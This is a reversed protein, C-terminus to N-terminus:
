GYKERIWKAANAMNIDCRIDKPIGEYTLEIDWSERVLKTLSIAGANINGAITNGQLSTGKFKQTKINALRGLSTYIIKDSDKIFEWKEDDQLWETIWDIGNDYWDPTNDLTFEDEDFHMKPLTQGEFIFDWLDGGSNHIVQKSTLKGEIM